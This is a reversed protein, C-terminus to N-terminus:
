GMNTYSAMARQASPRRQNLVQVVQPDTRPRKHNNADLLSGPVEFNYVVEDCADNVSTAPNTIVRNVGPYQSQLEHVLYDVQADMNFLIDTGM